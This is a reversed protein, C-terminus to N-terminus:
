QEDNKQEQTKKLSLMLEVGTSILTPSCGTIVGTSIDYDGIEYVDFDQPYVSVLSQPNKLCSSIVIRKAEDSTRAEFIQGFVNSKKDYITFLM